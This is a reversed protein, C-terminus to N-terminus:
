RRGMAAYLQWWKKQFLTSSLFAWATFVAPFRIAQRKYVDLHTYSVSVPSPEIFNGEVLGWFIDTVLTILFTYIIRKFKRVEVESGLNIHISTLLVISYITLFAETIVYPLYLM